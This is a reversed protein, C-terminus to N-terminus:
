CCQVHFLALFIFSFEEQLPIANDKGHLPVANDKRHILIALVKRYSRVAHSFPPFAIHSVHIAISSGMVVHPVSCLLHSPFPLVGDDRIVRPTIFSTTLLGWVTLCGQVCASPWSGDVQHGLLRAACDTAQIMPGSFYAMCVFTNTLGSPHCGCVALCSVGPFFPSTLIELAFLSHCPNLATDRGNM